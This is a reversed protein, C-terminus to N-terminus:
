WVVHRDGGFLLVRGGRGGIQLVAAALRLQLIGLLLTGRGRLPKSFQDIGSGGAFGLEALFGLLDDIGAMSRLEDGDELLHVSGGAVLLALLGGLLHQLVDLLPDFIGPPQFLPSSEPAAEQEASKPDM